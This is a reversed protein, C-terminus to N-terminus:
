KGGKGTGERMPLTSQFTTTANSRGSGLHGKGCPFPPNFNIIEWLTFSMGDTGERMPLTSQFEIEKYLDLTFDTGERM